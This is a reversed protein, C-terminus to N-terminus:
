LYGLIELVRDPPAPHFPGHTRCRECPETVSSYHEIVVLEPHHELLGATERTAADITGTVQQRHDNWAAALTAPEGLGRLREFATAHKVDITLGRRLRGCVFATTRAALDELSLVDVTGMEGKLRCARSLTSGVAHFLDIRIRQREDILQLLTRGDTADPHVHIQLFAGAISEPISAFSEVVLDIDTLARRAVPRAHARLQAGIALGGTLACRLGHGLVAEVVAAARRADTPELLSDFV